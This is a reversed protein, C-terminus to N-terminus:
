LVSKLFRCKTIVWLMRLGDICTIKKGESYLRPHYKIAVETARFGASFLKCLLENDYAFGNERISISEYAKRTFAKYCGEYDTFRKGYLLNTWVRIVVNGLYHSFFPDGNQTFYHLKQTIFRSGLVIDASGNKVPELLAPFDAPDYELDADQIIFVEGTAQSFGTKLAAGKGMNKEHRILRVGEIGAVIEATRDKSADDVVIIERDWGDLEIAKVQELIKAITKEENFAPVVISVTNIM